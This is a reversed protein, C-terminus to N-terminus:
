TGNRWLRSKGGGAHEREERYELVGIHARWLPQPKNHLTGFAMGPMVRTAFVGAIVRVQGQEVQQETGKAVRAVEGGLLAKM